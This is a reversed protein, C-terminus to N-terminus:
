VPLISAVLMQTYAHQPDDLEQDTLGHEIVEGGQMVM